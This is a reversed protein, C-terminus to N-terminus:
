LCSPARQFFPTLVEKAEGGVTIVSGNEQRLFLYDDHVCVFLQVQEIAIQGRFEPYSYGCNLLRAAKDLAIQLQCSPSDMRQVSFKDHPLVQCQFIRVTKMNANYYEVASKWDRTLKDWFYGIQAAYMTDNALRVANKLAEAKQTEIETQALADIWSYTTM